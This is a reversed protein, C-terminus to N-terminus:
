PTYDTHRAAAHRGLGQSHDFSESCVPCIFKDTVEDRYKSWVAKSKKGSKTRTTTTSSSGAAKRSVRLIDEVKMAELRLRHKECVDLEFDKGQWSWKVEQITVDDRGVFQEQDGFDCTLREVITRAM